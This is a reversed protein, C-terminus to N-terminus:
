EARIVRFGIKFDGPKENQLREFDEPSLPVLLQSKCGEGEGIIYAFHTKPRLRVRRGNLSGLSVQGFEVKEMPMESPIGGYGPEGSIESGREVFAQLALGKELPQGPVTNLRYGSISSRYIRELGALGEANKPDLRLSRGGYFVVDGLSFDAKLLAHSATLIHKEAGV